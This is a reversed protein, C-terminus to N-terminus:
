DEKIIKADVWYNELDGSADNSFLSSVDSALYPKGESAPTNIKPRM